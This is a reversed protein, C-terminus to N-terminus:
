LVMYHCLFYPEYSVCYWKYIMFIQSSVCLLFWFMFAVCVDVLNPLM